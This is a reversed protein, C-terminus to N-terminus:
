SLRRSEVRGTGVSHVEGSVYEDTVEIEKDSCGSELVVKSEKRVVPAMKFPNCPQPNLPHRHLVVM